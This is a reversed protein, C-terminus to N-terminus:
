AGDVTLLTVSETQLDLVIRVTGHELQRQVAAVKQELEREREGYDTGDRTVFEEILNRLATPSLADHPVETYRDEGSTGDRSM